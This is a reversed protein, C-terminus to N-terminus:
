GGFLLRAAAALLAQRLGCLLLQECRGLKELFREGANGAQLGFVRGVALTQVGLEGTRLIIQM